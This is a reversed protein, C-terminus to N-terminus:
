SLVTEIRTAGPGRPIVRGDIGPGVVKHPTNAPVQANRELASFSRPTNTSDGWPNMVTGSELVAYKSVLHSRSM